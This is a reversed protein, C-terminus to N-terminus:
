GNSNHPRSNVAPLHSTSRQNMRRRTTLVATMDPNNNLAKIRTKVSQDPRLPLKLNKPTLNIKVVERFYFLMM